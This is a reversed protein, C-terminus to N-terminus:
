IRTARLIHRKGPPGPLKETQFGAARLARVVDGKVSYTVLVGGPVLGTILNRFVEETWLEPQADPAFADFYILNFVGDRPLYTEIPVHMKHITFFPSIVVSQNWSAQHIRTFMQSYDISGFLKPYNLPKWFNEDLPFAEIATYHIEVGQKEAEIFTMLANLGTGFGAELIHLGGDRNAKDSFVKELTHRLGTEVFIHLSEQM